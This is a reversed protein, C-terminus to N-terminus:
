MHQKCYRKGEVPKEACQGGDGTMSMCREPTRKPVVSSSHQKCYREGPRSRRKCRTGSQTASWCQCQTKQGDKAVSQGGASSVDAFLPLLVAIITALVIRKM